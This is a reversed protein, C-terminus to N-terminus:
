IILRLLSKKSKRIMSQKNLYQRRCPNRLKKITLPTGTTPYTQLLNRSIQFASRTRRQILQRQLRINSTRLSPITLKCQKKRKRISKETLLTPRIRPTLKPNAKIKRLLCQNMLRTVKNKRKNLSALLSKRM